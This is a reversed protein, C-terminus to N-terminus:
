ESRFSSLQQVAAEREDVGRVDALRTSAEEVDRLTMGIQERLERLKKGASFVTDVQVRLREKPLVAIVM